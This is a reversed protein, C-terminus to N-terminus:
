RTSSCQFSKLWGWHFVLLLLQERQLLKLKPGIWSQDQVLRARNHELSTPKQHPPSYYIAKNQSRTFMVNECVVNEFCLITEFNVALNYLCSFTYCSRTQRNAIVRNHLIVLYTTVFTVQMPNWTRSPIRHTMTCRYIIHTAYIYSLRLYTYTLRYWSSQWRYDIGFTHYVPTFYLKSSCDKTAPKRKPWVHPSAIATQSHDHHWILLNILDM